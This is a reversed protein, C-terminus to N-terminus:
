LVMLNKALKCQGSERSKGVRAQWNLKMWVATAKVFWWEPQEPGTAWQWGAGCSVKNNRKLCSSTTTIWAASCAPVPLVRQTIMEPKIKWLSLTLKSTFQIHHPELLLIWCCVTDVPTGNLADLSLSLWPFLVAAPLGGKSDGIKNGHELRHQIVYCM